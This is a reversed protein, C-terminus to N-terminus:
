FPFWHVEVLQIYEINKLTNESQNAVEAQSASRDVGLVKGFYPALKRTFLGTGCAVDIVVSDEKSM